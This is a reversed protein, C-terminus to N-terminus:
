KKSIIDIFKGSDYILIGEKIIQQHLADKIRKAFDNFTEIKVSVEMKLTVFIERIREKNKINGVILVDLDSDKEAALRAYSGYVLLFEIGKAEKALQEFVARLEPYKDFMKEKKEEHVIMFISKTLSSGFNLYFRRLYVRKKELKEEKVVEKKVLFNVYASVYNPSLRTKAILERLNLGPNRFIEEIIKIQSNNLLKM